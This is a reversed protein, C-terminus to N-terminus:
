LGEIATQLETFHSFRVASQGATITEAGITVAAGTLTRIDTLAQRLETLHAARIATSRPVLPDDTWTAAALGRFKRLRDAETRLETLHVARIVAGGLVGATWAPSAIIFRRTTATGSATGDHASVSWTHAADAALPSQPVYRVTAGSGQTLGGAPFATWVGTNLYSFGTQSTGSFIGAGGDLSVTFHLSDGDSDTPVTWLLAPRPNLTRGYTALDDDAISGNSNADPCHVPSLLTPAAPPSGGASLMVSHTGYIVAYGGPLGSVSAFTGSITGNPFSIIMFAGSPANTNLVLTLNTLSLTGSGASCSLLDTSTGDIDIRLEAGAVSTLPTTSSLILTGRTGATAPSIRGGSACTVAGAITGTGGLTGSGGISVGGTSSDLSGTILLSGASVTTTGTLGNTGSLTLTGTGVKTLGGSGSIAGAYGTSTGNGGCTLVGTGLTINGGTSGGGSLSGISESSGNLDLLAGAVDALTVTALDGLAAGGALRLTGASITTAGTWTNSGSLVVLGAGTKTIAQDGTITGSFTATGSAAAHLTAARSLTLPGSFLASAATNVGVTATGTGGPRIWIPRAITFAGGAYLSATESGSSAGLEIPSAANGFAGASGLPADCGAVLTGAVVATTGIYRNLGSLTQTGTGSKVLNLYDGRSDSNRPYGIVGGAPNTASPAFTADQNNLGLTLTRFTTATSSSAQLIYGDGTLAGISADAGFLNWVGHPNTGGNQAADIRLTATSPIANALALNSKSVLGKEIWITGTLDNALNTILTGTAEEAADPTPGQNRFTGTGTLRSNLTKAAGISFILQSNDQIIITSSPQDTGFTVLEAGSVDLTAGAQLTLGSLDSIANGGSVALTAGACITTVGTNVMSGSVECRGTTVQFVGAFTNSGSLVLTGTGLKYLGIGQVPRSITLSGGSGQDIVGGNILDLGTSILSNGSGRVEVQGSAVHLVANGTDSITVGSTIAVRRVSRDSGHLSVDHGISVADGFGPIAAQTWTAVNDWDGPAQTTYLTTEYAILGLTLSYQAQSSGNVSAWPVNLGQNWGNGTSFLYSQGGGAGTGRTLGLDGSLRVLGTTSAATVTVNGTGTPALIIRSGSVTTNTSGINITGFTESRDAGAPGTVQLIGGQLNLTSTASFRDPNATGTGDIWLMAGTAVNIVSTNPMTTTDGTLRCTGDSITLTPLGAAPSGVLLVGGGTKTVAVTCSITGIWGLGNPSTNSVNVTFPSGLTTTGAFILDQSGDNIFNNGISVNNAITRAAGEARISPNLSASLILTGTGLASNHGIGLIGANLTCTGSFTNAGTLSLRGGGSKTLAVAAGGDDIIGSMTVGSIATATITRTIGFLTGNGQLVLADTGSFTTDSRMTWTNALTRTGGTAQLAGGLFNVPGSGLTQDHGVVLTGGGLATGGAYTQSGLVTLTGLTVTLSGTWTQNASIVAAGTGQKVIGASTNITARLDITGSSAQVVTLPLAGTVITCAVVPSGTGSVRLQGSSLTLQNSGTLMGSGSFSLGATVRDSSHLDVTHNSAIVVEDTPAPVMGGVWTGPDDWDGSRTTTKTGAAAPSDAVVGGGTAADYVAAANGVTVGPVSAGDTFGTIFWNPTGGAPQTRTLNLGGGSCTWTGTTLQASGTGAATLTVQNAGGTAVLAGITETRHTNNPATMTWTGGQLTVTASNGLRDPDLSGTNDIDFTTGAGIVLDAPITGTDGTLRLTGGSITTTGSYNNVGGLTLVGPGAKTLAFAGSIGGAGLVLGNTSTNTVTIVPAAGLTIAGGLTLDLNNDCTFSGNITALNALTRAATDSRIKGANITLPGTGAGSNHGLALTGSQLITGGSYSNSGSLTLQSTSNCTVSYVGGGDGIAGSVTQTRTGAFTVNSGLTIPGTFQTTGATRNNTIVPNGSITTTGTTCQFTGTGGGTLILNHNLAVPGSFTLNHSFAQNYFIMTITIDKLMSVSGSLTMDGTSVMGAVFDGNLVVANAISVTGGCGLVGGTITLTGKGLPGNTVTGTSSIPLNITGSALTVGAAFTNAGWINVTGAGDFILAGTNTANDDIVSVLTLTAGSAVQVSRAGTVTFPGSLSNTGTTAILSGNLVFRASSNAVTLGTTSITINGFGTGAPYNNTTALQNLGQFILNENGSGAPAVGGVWNGANNWNGNGGEGNWVFTGAPPSAASTVVLKVFGDSVQVVGTYEAPMTRVTLTGTPTGTCTILNYTGVRIGAIASVDLNGDLVVAGSSAVLDCTTGLDYALVATPSMTIAGVTLTGITGAGGPVLSGNLTISGAATGLGALAAGAAVTVASGAPLSKTTAISCTGASILTTGTYTNTNNFELIGTGTKIVNVGGSLAASITLDKTGTGRAVDFTTNNNLVLNAPNLWGFNAGTSTHAITNGTLTLTGNAIGVQANGSVAHTTIKSVQANFSNFDFVAGLGVVVLESNPIANNVGLRLNGSTGAVRTAGTYANASNSLVLLGVSSGKTLSGAGTWPGAMTITNGTSTSITVNVPLSVNGGFTPAGSSSTFTFDGMLRLDNNLTVTGPQLAGGIITFPGTGLPGQTVANILGTSSNSIILVGQVLTVGGSFTSAANSLTLKRGSNDTGFITLRGTGSIPGTLNFGIGNSNYITVNTNLTINGSMTATINLEVGFDGELSVNNAINFGGTGPRIVGGQITLPGTGVPGSTVPSGTSNGKIILKGAVLVTGGSYVSTAANLTLSGTGRKTLSCGDGVTGITGAFTIGQLDNTTLIRNGGLVVSGNFNVTNMGGITLNGGFTWTGTSFTVGSVMSFVRDGTTSANGTFTMASTGGFTCDGTISVVNAISRTATALITGGAITLTGTGVPGNTVSGTSDIDLSLAGASLLTGGSFDHAASSVLLGAGTKSLGGAGSVVGGLTITGGAQATLLFGGNDVAGLTLSANAASVTSIPTALVLACSIANSGAQSTIAGNVTLSPGNLTFGGSAFTISGVQALGHTVSVGTGSFILNDSALGTPASSGAWNAGTSVLGDGGLGTWTFDQAWIAPLLCLLFM